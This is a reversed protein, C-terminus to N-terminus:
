ISIGTGIGSVLQNVIDFVIYVVLSLFAYLVINSLSPLSTVLTSLVAMKIKISDCLSFLFLFYLLITWLIKHTHLSLALNFSDSPTVVSPDQQLLQVPLIESIVRGSNRVM